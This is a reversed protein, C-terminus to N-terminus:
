VIEDRMNTRGGSSRFIEGEEGGGGEDFAVSLGLAVEDRLRDEVCSCSSASILARRASSASARLAAASASNFAFLGAGIILGLLAFGGGPVFPADIAFGCLFALRYWSICNALSSSSQTPEEGIM